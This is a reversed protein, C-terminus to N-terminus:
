EAEYYKCCFHFIALAGLGSFLAFSTFINDWQDLNAKGAEIQVTWAGTAYLFLLLNPLLILLSCLGKVWGPLERKKQRGKQLMTEYQASQGQRNNNNSM